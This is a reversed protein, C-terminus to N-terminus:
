VPKKISSEIEEYTVTIDQTRMENVRTSYHSALTDMLSHHDNVIRRFDEQNSELETKISEILEGHSTNLENDVLKLMESNLLSLEKLQGKFSKAKGRLDEYPLFDYTRSTQGM